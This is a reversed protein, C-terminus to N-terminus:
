INWIREIKNSRMKFIQWFVSHSSYLLFEHVSTPLHLLCFRGLAASPRRWPRTHTIQLTDVILERLAEKCQLFALFCHKYLNDHIRWPTVRWPTWSDGMNDGHAGRSNVQTRMAQGTHATTQTSNSDSRLVMRCLNCINSWSREEWRMWSDTPPSMDSVEDTNWSSCIMTSFELSM